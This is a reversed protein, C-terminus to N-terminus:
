ENRILVRGKSIEQLLFFEVVTEDFGVAEAINKVAGWTREINKLIRYGEETYEVEGNQSADFIARYKGDHEFLCVPTNMKVLTKETFLQRARVFVERCLESASVPELPCRGCEMSAFCLSDCVAGNTYFKSFFSAFNAFEKEWSVEEFLQVSPQTVSRCPHLVGSYDCYADRSLARCEYKENPLNLGYKINLYAIAAANGIDMQINGAGSKSIYRSIDECVDLFEVTNLSLAVENEVARGSLTLPTLQIYSLDYSSLFALWEVIDAKNIKNIVTNVAVELKQNTTKHKILHELFRWSKDWTGIGRIQDNIEQTGEISVTINVVNYRLIDDIISPDFQGNTIISIRVNQKSLESLIRRIKKHLLPEGGLLTVSDSINAINTLTYEFQADDPTCSFEMESAAGCHKCRLNCTNTVDWVINM